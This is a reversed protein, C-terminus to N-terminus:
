SKYTYMNKRMEVQINHYKRGLDVLLNAEENAFGYYEAFRGITLFDNLWELYFAILQQKM